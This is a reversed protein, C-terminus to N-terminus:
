IDTKIFSISLFDLNEPHYSMPKYSSLNNHVNYLVMCISYIDLLGMDYWGSFKSKRLMEKVFVSIQSIQSIFTVRMNGIMDKASKWVERKM